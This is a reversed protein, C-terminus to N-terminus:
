LAHIQIRMYFNGDTVYHPIKFVFYFATQAANITSDRNVTISATTPTFGATSLTLTTELQLTAGTSDYM